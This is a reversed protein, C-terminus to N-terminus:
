LGQSRQIYAGVYYICVVERMEFHNPLYGKLTQPEPEVYRVHVDSNVNLPHVYMYMYIYVNVHEVM